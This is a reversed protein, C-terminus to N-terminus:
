LQYFNFIAFLRDHIIIIIMLQSARACNLILLIYMIGFCSNCRVSNCPLKIPYVTSGGIASVGFLPCGGFLPCEDQGRNCKGHGYCPLRRIVSVELNFFLTCKPHGYDFIYSGYFIVELLTTAWGTM